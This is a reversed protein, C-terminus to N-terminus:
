IRHRRTKENTDFGIGDDKVMLVHQDTTTSLQVIAIKAKSHKLINNIQEQVIRYFMLKIEKNLYKEDFNKIRLELQLSKALSINGILEKLASVLTVNGLSPATLSHSLQRIQEIALMINELSKQLLESQLNETRIAHELYLKSTALIQNINDHLEKGIEEREQEQAQIGTEAILKQQLVIQRTLRAETEKKEIASWIANPLRQLRDKLIYDVAGEKIINAAYEDSVTATVLIFPARIGM